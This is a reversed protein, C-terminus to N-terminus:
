KLKSQFILSEIQEGAKKHSFRERAFTQAAEAKMQSEEPNQLIRNIAEKLSVEDNWEFFYGREEEGILEKTGASNTGAIQKGALMAEITVMGFTENKSAMVFIDVAAYFYGVEKMFPFLFFSPDEDVEKKLQQYYSEWEGETKSGVMLMKLNKYKQQLEEVGKKVFYQAKHPDIRGIMGVVIDRDDIGFYKRASSRDPLAKKFAEIDVALPIVAIREEPFNTKEKVQKALYHLPAVWHDIKKFRVTHWWEKKDVGLQMAQQFIIKVKNGLLTKTLALLSLDRKDRFWTHTIHLRKLKKRLRIANKVDISKKNRKILHVDIAAKITEKHLVSNEVCFLYVEHGRQKMWIAHRLTNM